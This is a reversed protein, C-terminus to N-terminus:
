VCGPNRPRVLRIHTGQDGAANMPLHQVPKTFNSSTANILQGTFYAKSDLGYSNLEYILYELTHMM